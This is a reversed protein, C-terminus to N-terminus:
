RQYAEAISKVIMVSGATFIAFALASFRAAARASRLRASLMFVAIGGALICGLPSRLLPVFVGLAPLYYLTLAPM